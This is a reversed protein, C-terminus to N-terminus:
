NIGGRLATSLDGLKTRLDRKLDDNNNIAALAALNYDNPSAFKLENAISKLMPTERIPYRDIIQDLNKDIILQNLKELESKYRSDISININGNSNIKIEERSPLNQLLKDRLKKEALRSALHTLNDKKLCELAANRASRLMEEGSIGFVIGQRHAVSKLVEKSYYLSEVSFYPLAYIGEQQIEKVLKHDMGDNDVLGYVDAHHLTAVSRLGGVARRVDLCTAKCRLSVDPFILAYLPQDLSTDTGEIFLVKKRSGLIDDRVFEPIRDIEPIFEVDWSSVASEHWQCGRVLIIGCGSNASPLGLEHTCIIIACDDREALLSTILPVVISPHLHLELEDILIVSNEKASIVDAITILAIREGDSMKSISYVNESRKAKLEGNDVVIEIPLSAQKLLRNVRHIPSTKLQLETISKSNVGNKEVDNAADVKFQIETAQLDFIARENRATGNVPRVRTDPSQDWSRNNQEFQLRASPTMNLSDNDFYSPRSGPIYKFNLQRNRALNSAINHILASKGTGNRGVIFIPKGATLDLKFGGNATPIQIEALSNTAESITM